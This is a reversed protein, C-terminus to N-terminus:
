DCLFTEPKILRILLGIPMMESCLQLGLRSEIRM